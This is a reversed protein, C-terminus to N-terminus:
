TSRMEEYQAKTGALSCLKSLSEVHLRNKCWNETTGKVTTIETKLWRKVATELEYVKKGDHPGSLEVQKWGYRRHYRMRSKPSNTIGFQQEDEREMLYM